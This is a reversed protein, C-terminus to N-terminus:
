SSTINGIRTLQFIYFFNVVFKMIDGEVFTFTFVFLYFSAGDAHVTQLLWGYTIHRCIYAVRSFALGVTAM